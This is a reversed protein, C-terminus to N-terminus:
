KENKVKQKIFKLVEDNKDAKFNLIINKEKENCTKSHKFVITIQSNNFEINNIQNWKVFFNNIVIGENSIFNCKPSNVIFMYLQICLTIMFLGFTYISKYVAAMLGMISLMVMESLFNYNNKKIISIYFESNGFEKRKLLLNLATFLYGICTLLCLIVYILELVNFYNNKTLFLVIILVISFGLVSICLFAKNNM